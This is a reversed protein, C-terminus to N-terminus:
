KKKRRFILSGVLTLGVGIGAGILYPPFNFNLIASNEFNVFVSTQKQNGSEDIAIATINHIGNVHKSTDLSYVAEPYPYYSPMNTEDMLAGDLLIQIKDLAQDDDGEVTINITDSINLNSTPNTIIVTPPILDTPAEGDENVTIVSPIMQAVKGSETKAMFTIRFDGEYENFYKKIGDLNLTATFNHTGVTTTSLTFWVDFFSDSFSQEPFYVIEPDNPDDPNIRPIPPEWGPPTIVARVYKLDTDNNKVMITMPLARVSPTVFQRIPVMELFLWPALLLPPKIHLNLADSGDGGNPLHGWYDVENGIEDHNDDIWPKQYDSLGATNVNAKANEFAEGISYGVSISSWFAETFVATTLDATPYSSHASDTACVVIRNDKSVPNIFSGAHCAEYVIVSRTMGTAAELTNLYTNLDSDGLNSGPLSMSNTGGHDFLFIGLGLSSSVKDAAWTEIAYQIHVKESTNKANIPLSGDWDEAMYYIYNASYGLGILIDYVEECGNEISYYLSHDSERDGAVIIWANINASVAAKPLSDLNNYTEMNNLSNVTLVSVSNLMCVSLLLIIFVKSNFKRM